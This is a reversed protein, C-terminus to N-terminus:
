APRQKRKNQNASSLSRVNKTKGIKMESHPKAPTKFGARLAAEFRKQAEKDDYNDSDKAM